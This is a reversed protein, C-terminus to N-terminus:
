SYGVADSLDVSVLASLNVVTTFIMSLSNRDRPTDMVYEVSHNLAVVTYLM